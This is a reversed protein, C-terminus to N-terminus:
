YIRDKKLALCSEMTKCIDLFITATTLVRDLYNVLQLKKISEMDGNILEPLAKSDHVHKNDTVKM